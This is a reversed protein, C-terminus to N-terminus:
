NVRRKALAIRLKAYSIKENFCKRLEKIDFIGEDIKEYIMKLEDYNFLSDIELDPIAEILTEIQVSLISEPIKTISAIDELSYKKQILELIQYSTHPLNKEKIKHINIENKEFENIAEIFEAGIKNFMRNNFGDIDLFESYSKPRLKSINRLVNDPCILQAPQNFKESAEKRIQRLINFLKLEDEYNKQNTESDESLFLNLNNQEYFIIDNKVSIIKELELTLLMDELEITSFHECSGFTSINHYKSDKGTIIKFLEKKHLPNKFENLTTIIHRRLYDDNNLTITKGLCADCRGCKYNDKIEGFYNLIYAFRCDNSTIYGIMKQLKNKNHEILKKTKSFDLCLDESKVRSKLITVTPFLSPPEYLIIGSNNLLKLYEILSEVNSNLIESLRMLNIITKTRFIKNGYNRVLILIFDKLENDNIKYIFSNLKAPEILFQVYHKQYFDPNFKIYGSEELIKISSEILAKNLEKTQLFSILNTDLPIEKKPISGLSIRGYDCIANYVLEVQERQPFSNKIFYEQIAIDKEDFLLFINSPKGDRGARGIEQYYNELNAPMNFHIVTRIDSKDIGMGFANTAVILNIRGELFDDQIIKRKEANLGAHYYACNIKNYKLFEYVEEALKRTATYIIAPIASPTILKLLTEKKEKIKIVNLNLNRREFGHIFIRANIIGLQELIDKRVDETATATFASIKTIGTFEAFHKIKRYSPRFNHGWESICHAEDIFLYSPSLQKIIEAFNINDLKEPSLYLLKIKGNSIDNFVLQIEKQSLTSNIFAAIKIKKNITDVQDKMLAILPSIVISFSNSLIAPIQYCISKGGGTPLVALVNEGNLIANIIEQQAPRFEEFGFYKKLIEKPTM